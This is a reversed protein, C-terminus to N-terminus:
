YSALLNAATTFFALRSVMHQAITVWNVDETYIFKMKQVYDGSIIDEKSLILCFTYM